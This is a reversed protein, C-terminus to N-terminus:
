KKGWKILNWIREHFFYLVMKTVVEILGISLALTIKGTILWSILITDITGVIRWSIAKVLSRSAKESNKIKDFEKSNKTKSSTYIQDIIM